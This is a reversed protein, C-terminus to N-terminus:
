RRYSPHAPAPEPGAAIAAPRRFSPVNTSTDAVGALELKQDVIGKCLVLTILLLYYQDYTSMNLFAGGVAYAVLSLKLMGAYRYENILDPRDRTRKQISTCTRLGTIGIALFLILGIFGQTGLVEFYISHVNRRKSDPNYKSYIKERGRFVGFGGGTFPRDKAVNIAFTWIRLRGQASGDEEYNEISHMREVWKSPIVPVLVIALAVAAAGFALRRNSKWWWAIALAAMALFAGRSYSGIVSVLSLPISANLGWRIWKNDAKLALYRMLPLIMLTAVALENNGFIISSPPGWVRYQGGTMLTFIGGKVAFYGVSVVIIWILIELRKESRMLALTLFIMLIGKAFKRFPAGAADPVLALLTTFGTWALYVAILVIIPDWSIKKEEKSMLWSVVTVVAILMAVPFESIFGWALRHPNMISIWTWMMIGVHPRLLIFPVSGFIIITIILDRM